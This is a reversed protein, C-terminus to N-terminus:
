GFSYKVGHGGREPNFDIVDKPGIVWCTGCAVCPVHDFRVKGARVDSWTLKLAEAPDKVRDLNVRYLDRFSLSSV